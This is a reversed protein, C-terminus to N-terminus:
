SLESIRSQEGRGAPEKGTLLFIASLIMAAGFSAASLAILLVGFLYEIFHWSFLGDSLLLPSPYAKDRM